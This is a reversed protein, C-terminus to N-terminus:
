VHQIIISSINLVLLAGRGEPVVQLLPLKSELFCCHGIYRGTEGV